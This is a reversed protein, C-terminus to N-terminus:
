LNTTAYFLDMLIIHINIKLVLDELENVHYSKASCVIYKDKDQYKIIEDSSLIENLKDM